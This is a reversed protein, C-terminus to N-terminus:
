VAGGLLQNRVTYLHKLNTTNKIYHKLNKQQDSVMRHM